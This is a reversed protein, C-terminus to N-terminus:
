AGQCEGVEAIVTITAYTPLMRQVRENRPTLAHM